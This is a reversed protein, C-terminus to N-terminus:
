HLEKPQNDYLNDIQNLADEAFIGGGDGNSARIERLARVAIRAEEVKLRYRSEDFSRKSSLISPLSSALVIAMIVVVIIGVIILLSTLVGV